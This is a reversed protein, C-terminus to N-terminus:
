HAGVADRVSAFGEAKLRASRDAAIRGILGPGEYVMASYVQVASAGARIKALATAGSEVGGAGILPVRGGLAQAFLALAQM